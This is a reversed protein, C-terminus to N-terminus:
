ERALYRGPSVGYAAKFMAIFASPEGFGLLDSIRSV